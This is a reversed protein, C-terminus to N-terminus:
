ARDVALPYRLVRETNLGIARASDRGAERGGRGEWDRNEVDVMVKVMAPRVRM